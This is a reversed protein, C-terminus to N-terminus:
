ETKCTLIYVGGWSEDKLQLVIDDVDNLLDSFVDRVAPVLDSGTFHVVRNRDKFSVLVAKKDSMDQVNLYANFTVALLIKVKISM